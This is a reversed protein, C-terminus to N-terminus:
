SRHFHVYTVHNSPITKLMLLNNLNCLLELFKSMKFLYLPNINNRSLLKLGFSGLIALEQSSCNLCFFYRIEDLTKLKKLGERLDWSNLFFIEEISNKRYVVLVYGPSCEMVFLIRAEKKM